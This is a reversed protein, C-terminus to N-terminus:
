SDFQWSMQGWMDGLMINNKQATNSHHFSPIIVLYGKPKPLNSHQFWDGSEFWKSYQEKGLM